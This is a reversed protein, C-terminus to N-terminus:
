WLINFSLTDSYEEEMLLSNAGELQGKVFTEM